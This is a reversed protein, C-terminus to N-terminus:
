KKYSVQIASFLRAVNNCNLVMMEENAELVKANLLEESNTEGDLNPLYEKDILKDIVGITNNFDGAYDILAYSKAYLVGNFKVLTSTDVTKKTILEVDSIKVRNKEEVEKIEFEVIIKEIKEETIPRDEDKFVRKIIRYKGASLEGYAIEFDLVQEREENAYLNFTIANWSLPEGTITSVEGWKGDKLKEIFYEPGYAYTDKTNNKLIITAGKATLTGDKISLTVNSNEESEINNEMVPPCYDHGWTSFVVEKNNKMRNMDVAYLIGLTLLLLGVILGLIIFIRKKM